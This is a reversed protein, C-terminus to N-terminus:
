FRTEYIEIGNIKQETSKKRQSEGAKCHMKQFDESIEMVTRNKTEPVNFKVYLGCVVCFFLFILFCFHQLVDQFPLM